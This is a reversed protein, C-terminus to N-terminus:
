SRLGGSPFVFDVIWFVNRYRGLCVTLSLFSADEHWLFYGREQDDSEGLTGEGVRM